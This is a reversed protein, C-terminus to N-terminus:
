QGGIILKQRDTNKGDSIEVTYIGTRLGSVNIQAQRKGAGFSWQKKLNGTNDYLKIMRISPIVTNGAVTAKSANDALPQITVIDTAPNPAVRFFQGVACVPITIYKWDSWGCSNGIRVRITPMASTQQIYFAATNVMAVPSGSPSGPPYLLCGSVNEIEIVSTSGGPNSIAFFNPSSGGICAVGYGPKVAVVNTMDSGGSGVIKTATYSSGCSLITATLTVNGNGIKTLTTQTSSPTNINVIGAPSVSWTVIAGAPLGPITYPNSTTCFSYDGSISFISPTLNAINTTNTTVLNTNNPDLWNSLRTDNTGGGSWSLDFRGGYKSVQQCTPLNADDIGYHQGIIRHNLDFYPSGSSGSETTGNDVMLHWCQAGIFNGFTPSNIDKTIKMVDGKPHHIITTQLIGATSRSWGAYNIGSNIPPITSLEVLCFDTGASNSRLTSGNFTVGNSNQSPTCTSSWAQFTFRWGSVNRVPKAQEYVHNATLFFPRNTNCTNMVMAGSFTGTGDGSIGLAVSNRENNWGSGLPCLVNVECPSSQGFGGVQTKYLEKYGYAINNSHLTLQNLTALPTKIEIALVSGEYVWSGWVKNANNEADTVPGTVMNGKENYIYMESGKPLYFKDFNISSSLAGNLKIMFKAYAFETDYNWNAKKVIDLDLPVAVAIQFPQVQNVTDNKQKEIQLLDPISKEPIEFDIKSSYLKGFKGRADIPTQNNFNTTVQASGSICIFFLSATFLNFLHKM